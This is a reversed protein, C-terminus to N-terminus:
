SRLDISKWCCSRIGQLFLDHMVASRHLVFVNAVLQVQNYNLLTQSLWVNMINEPDLFALVNRRPRHEVHPKQSRSVISAGNHINFLIRVTLKM